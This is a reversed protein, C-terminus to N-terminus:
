AAVRLVQQENEKVRMVSVDFYAKDLEASVCHRGTNQCAVLCSGSGSFPEFVVQGPMTSNLILKEFLEVPKQTPHLRDGRINDIEFVSTSGCDNIVKAKGKRFMVIFESNKMYWRNPTANNKKWVLINHLKFGVNSAENLLEQMNKDNVMVYAHSGDKLVRYAEPLWDSFKIDNHQFLKGNRSGLRNRDFIGKVENRAVKKSRGGQTIKYPPDTLLLDVCEDSMSKMMEICCKNKIKIM